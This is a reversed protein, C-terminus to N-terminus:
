ASEQHTDQPLWISFTTGEGVKSEVALEGEHDEIIQKCIYLGLGLGKEKTTFFPDFLNKKVEPTMGHGTDHIYVTVGEPNETNRLSLNVSGGDSIADIANMMLNLFVQTIQDKSAIVETSKTENDITSQIDKDVMRNKTLLLIGELIEHININSKESPDVRRNLDRLKKVIRSSRQLEEMALNLYMRLESDKEGLTEEALGLCGISTQLPNNIEHALSAALRGTLALKESKILAAHTEQQNTIDLSILLYKQQHNLRDYVKSLSFELIKIQQNDLNFRLVEKILAQNEKDIQKFARIFERKNDGKLLNCYHQNIFADRKRGIHNAFTPNVEEAYGHENFIAIGVNANEIVGQYKNTKDEVHIAKDTQTSPLVNLHIEDIPLGIILFQDVSASDDLFTVNNFLIDKAVLDRDIITFRKWGGGQKETKAKNCFRYFKHQDEKPMFETFSLNKIDEAFPLKLVKRFEANMMQVNLDVNNTLVFSILPFKELIHNITTPHAM